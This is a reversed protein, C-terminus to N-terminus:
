GEAEDKVLTLKGERVGGGFTITNEALLNPRNLPCTSPLEIISRSAKFRARAPQTDGFRSWSEAVLAFIALFLILM